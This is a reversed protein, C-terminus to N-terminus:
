WGVRIGTSVGDVSYTHLGSRDSWTGTASVETLTDTASRRKTSIRQALESEAELVAHQSTRIVVPIGLAALGIGSFFGLRLVSRRSLSFGTETTM